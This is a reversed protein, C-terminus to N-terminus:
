QSLRFYVIFILYFVTREVYSYSTDSLNTFPSVFGFGGLRYTPGVLTYGECYKSLFIKLYSNENLFFDVEGM